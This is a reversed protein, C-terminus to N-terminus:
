KREKYKEFEIPAFEGVRKVELLEDLLDPDRIVFAVGGAKRIDKIKSIQVGSARGKSGKVELGFYRGKYCVILDPEGDTTAVVIKIYKAGKKKLRKIIETQIKKESM